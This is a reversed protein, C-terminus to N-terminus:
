PSGQEMGRTADRGAKHPRHLELPAEAAEGELLRRPGLAHPGQVSSAGDPVLVALSSSGLSGEDRGHEGCRGTVVASRSWRALVGHQEQRCCVSVELILGEM